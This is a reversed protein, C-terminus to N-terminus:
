PLGIVSRGTVDNIKDWTERNQATLDTIVQNLNRASVGANEPFQSTRRPRRAGVIQLTGTAATTLTVSANTIPRCATSLTGAPITLQWDTVPTLMVGNLWVEVWAGYDTGDGLIAFTVSFPGTSASPAYAVRRESDPLAAVAPCTQGWAAAPALLSLALLFGIAIKHMRPMM